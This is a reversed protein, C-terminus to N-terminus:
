GSDEPDGSAPRRAEREAQRRLAAKHREWSTTPRMRDRVAERSRYLERLEETPPVWADTVRFSLCGPSGRYVLQGKERDEDDTIEETGSSAALGHRWARVGRYVSGAGYKVYAQRYNGDEDSIIALYSGDRYGEIHLIVDEPLGRPILELKAADSEAALIIEAKAKRICAYVEEPTLIGSGNDWVPIFVVRPGGCADCEDEDRNDQWQEADAHLDLDNSSM